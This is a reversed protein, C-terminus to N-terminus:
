QFPQYYNRSITSGEEKMRQWEDNWWTRLNGMVNKIRFNYLHADRDWQHVVPSLTGDWNFVEHTVDNYIGWESFPKKRLAGVNNILGRGQEWVTVSEIAHANSLKHSYYLYNHFGQDSGTMRIPTEDDENIEAKLYEEMAMREGMTSGSCITPKQKLNTLLDNGCGGKLWNMNKTSIGLRTANANEGYFWLKGKTPDTSRPLDAFPDLQFFSDRADLVMLWSNPNYKQAWIWYWEYRLTAVVRGVRPDPAVKVVQGSEDKWGYVNNLLCMQFIDLGGSHDMVRRPAPTTQDIGFCDMVVSYVVLFPQAALYDLVDKQRVREEAIALVLDGSFGTAKLTEIFSMYWELSYGEAYALIADHDPRHRGVIPEIIPVAGDPLKDTPKPFTSPGMVKAEKSYVFLDADSAIAHKVLLSSLLMLLLFWQTMAMTMVRTTTMAM